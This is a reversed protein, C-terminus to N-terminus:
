AEARFSSSQQFSRALNRAVRALWARLSGPSQPGRGLARLWTEQLVDQVRGEDSVLGRVVARVFPEHELLTDASLVPPFSSM